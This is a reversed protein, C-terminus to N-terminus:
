VWVCLQGHLARGSVQHLRGGLQGEEIQGPLPSRRGIAWDDVKHVHARGQPRWLVSTERRQATNFHDDLGGSRPVQRGCLVSRATESALSSGRAFYWSSGDRLPKYEDIREEEVEKEVAAQPEDPGKQQRWRGVHFLEETEGERTDLMGAELWAVVEDLSPIAEDREGGYQRPDNSTTEVPSNSQLWGQNSWPPYRRWDHWTWGARPISSSSSSRRDPTKWRWDNWAGDCWGEAAM